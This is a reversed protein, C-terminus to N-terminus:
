VPLVILLSRKGFTSKHHASRLPADSRVSSILVLFLLDCYVVILLFVFSMCINTGLFERVSSRLVARGDFGRSFPSRGCGKLQLEQIHDGCYDEQPIGRSLLPHPSIQNRHADEDLRHSTFVEGISLARGDGLQGFWQGYSHCGYVTAYPVDLGPLLKNGSFADAFIENTFEAPDLELALACSTSAGILTPAAVEEPLVNTFHIKRLQKPYMQSGNKLEVDDGVLYKTFTNTGVGFQDLSRLKTSQNQDMAMSRSIIGTLSVSSKRKLIHFSSICTLNLMIILGSGM